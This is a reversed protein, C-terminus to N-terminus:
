SSQENLAEVGVLSGDVLFTLMAGGGTSIHDIGSELGFQTLATETDGGGILTFAPTQNVATAVTQTGQQHDEEEFVGMTGNMIVTKAQMIIKAFQDASEPTIDKTDPTLQALNVNAPVPKDQLMVAIKGGVLIHDAIPAFADVLPLKTEMKAGGLVVVLPREPNLRVKALANIEKELSLGAFSPIHKPIGVISAHQRHCVAFAENVYLNGLSALSQAFDPDNTEEQPWFRLNDLLSIPSDPVQITKYDVVHPIFAVSEQLLNNLIPIVPQLSSDQDFRGEPRGAHAILIVKCNNQRLLKITSIADEIRTTDTVQGDEIPVDFNARLIVTSNQYQPFAQSISNM